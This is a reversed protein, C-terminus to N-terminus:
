PSQESSDRKEDERSRMENLQGMYRNYNMFCLEFFEKENKREKRVKISSKILRYDKFAKWIYEIYYVIDELSKIQEDYDGTQSYLSCLNHIIGLEQDARNGLIERFMYNNPGKIQDYFACVEFNEEM